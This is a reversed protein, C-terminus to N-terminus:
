LLDGSMSLLGAAAILAATEARLLRRGLSVAGLGADRALAVEAADWGGEPGVLLHVSGGPVAHRCLADGLRRGGEGEWLLAGASSGARAVEGEIAQVAAGFSLTEGLQPIRLRRSQEAAGRLIACLRAERGASPAAGHQSRASRVPVFRAVGVETGKQLLWAFHEPRIFAQYIVVQLSPESCRRSPEVVVGRVRPGDVVLRVEFESGRGDLAIVHEGTAVRLVRAMHHEQEPSFRVAGGEIDGADVFFHHRVGSGAHQVTPAMDHTRSM